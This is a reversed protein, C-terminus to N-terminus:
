PCVVVPACCGRHLLSNLRHRFRYISNRLGCLLPMHVIYRTRLLILMSDCESSSCHKAGTREAASVSPCLIDNASKARGSRKIKTCM